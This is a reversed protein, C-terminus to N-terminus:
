VFIASANGQKDRDNKALSTKLQYSIAVDVAEEWGVTQGVNEQYDVHLIQRLAQYNPEDLQCQYRIIMAILACSSRLRNSEALFNREAKEYSNALEM